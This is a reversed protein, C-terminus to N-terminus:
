SIILSNDDTKREHDSSWHTTYHISIRVVTKTRSCNTYLSYLARPAASAAIQQLVISRYGWPFQRACNDVSSLHTNTHIIIRDDTRHDVLKYVAHLRYWQASSSCRQNEICYQYCYKQFSDNRLSPLFDTKKM